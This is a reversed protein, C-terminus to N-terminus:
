LQGKFCYGSMEGCRVREIIGKLIPSLDGEHLGEKVYGIHVYKGEFEIVIDDPTIHVCEIVIDCEKQILDIYDDFVKVNNFAEEMEALSDYYVGEKLEGDISLVKYCVNVSDRYFTQCYKIERGHLTLVNDVGETKVSLEELIVDLLRDNAEYDDLYHMRVRDIFNHLSLVEGITFLEKVDGICLQSLRQLLRETITINM